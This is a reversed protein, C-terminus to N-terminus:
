SLKLLLILWGTWGLPFWDQIHMPLVSALASVGISQGGSTFFQTVPFSGPFLNMPFSKPFSQLCSFFPTVSFSITPHCWQSYPCSNSYARPTPSPCPLSPHQLGHPRLSNSMVSRSFQVSSLWVWLQSSKGWTDIGDWRGELSLLALVRGWWWGDVRECSYRQGPPRRPWGGETVTSETDWLWWHLETNAHSGLSTFGPSPMPHPCRPVVGGVSGQGKAEQGDSCNTVESGLQSDSKDRQICLWFGPLPTLFSLYQWRSWVVSLRHKYFPCTPPHPHSLCCCRSQGLPKPKPAKSPVSM